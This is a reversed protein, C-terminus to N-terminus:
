VFWLYIGHLVGLPAALIGVFSVLAELNLAASFHNFAYAANTLWALVNGIAIFIIFLAVIVAMTLGKFQISYLCQYDVLGRLEKVYGKRDDRDAEPV